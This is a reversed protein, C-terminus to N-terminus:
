QGTSLSGNVEDITPISVAAGERTVSISAAVNALEAAQLLDLGSLLGATLGGIFTDGAGTTDVADVSVADIRSRQGAELLCVGKEGITVVISRYGDRELREMGDFVTEIHKTNIRKGSLAKLELENVVILDTLNRIDPTIARVPAPNLLTTAGCNKAKKFVKEIVNDPIEFQSLVIDGSEILLDDTFGDNWLANAGSIVVISNAASEAVTIFATGTATNELQRVGSTDIGEQEQFALLQAGFADDGLRGVMLTDCGLRRCAVAQNSGKGGAFYKVERGFVTEGVKPHNKVFAVIDMNISGIVIAKSM